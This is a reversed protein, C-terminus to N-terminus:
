GSLVAGQGGSLTVSTVPASSGIRTMPRPLAVSGSTGPPAVVAEGHTFARMWLGGPLQTRPQAQEGLDMGRLAAYESHPSQHSFGVFDLGTNVLLYSALSYENDAASSNSADGANTIGIGKAALGDVFELYEGYKGASSIASRPDVNFEKTVVNVYRLARQVDPNGLMSKLDWMQANIEIVGAPGLAARVAEILNAYQAPTGAINGGAFNVDDMFQGLYGHEKDRKVWAVYEAVHTAGSSGWTTWADHYALTPVGAVVYRDGGPPYAMLRTLGKFWEVPFGDFESKADLRIKVLGAVGQVAAAISPPPAPLAVSAPAALRAQARSLKRPARHHRHHAFRRHHAACRTKRTRSHRRARRVCRHRPHRAAFRHHQDHRRSRAMAGSASVQAALLACFGLVVMLVATARRGNFRPM